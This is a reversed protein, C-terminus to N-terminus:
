LVHTAQEDTDYAVLWVRTKKWPDRIEAVFRGWPRKRVVRYCIEKVAMTVMSKMWKTTKKKKAVTSRATYLLVVQLNM